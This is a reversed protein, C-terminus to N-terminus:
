LEKGCWPCFRVGHIRAYSISKDASEPQVLNWVTFEPEVDGTMGAWRSGEVIVTTWNPKCRHLPHNKTSKLKM